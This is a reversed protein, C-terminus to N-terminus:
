NTGPPKRPHGVLGLHQDPVYEKKFLTNNAPINISQKWPNKAKNVGSRDASTVDINRSSGQNPRSRNTCKYKDWLPCQNDPVIFHEFFRTM